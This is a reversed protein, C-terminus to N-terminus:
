HLSFEIRSHLSEREKEGKQIKFSRKCMVKKRKKSSKKDAFSSPLTSRSDFASPIRCRRLICFMGADSFSFSTSLLPLPPPPHRSSLHSPFLPSSPDFRPTVSRDKNRRCANVQFELGRRLSNVVSISSFRVWFVHFHGGLYTFEIKERERWNRTEVNNM